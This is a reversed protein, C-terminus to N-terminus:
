AQPEWGKAREDRLRLERRGAAAARAESVMRELERQATTHAEAESPAIGSRPLGGNSAIWANRAWDGNELPLVNWGRADGVEM